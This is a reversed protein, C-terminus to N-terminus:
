CNSQVECHPVEVYIVQNLGGLQGSLCIFDETKCSSIPYQSFNLDQKEFELLESKRTGSELEPLERSERESGRVVAGQM